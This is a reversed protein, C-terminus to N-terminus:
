LIPPLFPFDTGCCVNKRSPKETTKENTQWAFGRSRYMNYKKETPNTLSDPAPTEDSNLHPTCYLGKDNHCDSPPPLWM